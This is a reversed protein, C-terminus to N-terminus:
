YCCEYVWFRSHCNTEVVLEFDTDLFSLLPLHHLAADSSPVDGGALVSDPSLRGIAVNLVLILVLNESFFELDTGCAGVKGEGETKFFVIALIVLCLM